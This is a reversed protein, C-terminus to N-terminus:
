TRTLGSSGIVDMHDIDSTKLTPWIRQQKSDNQRPAVDHDSASHYCTTTLTM